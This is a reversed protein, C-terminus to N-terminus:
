GAVRPGQSENSSISLYISLYISICPFIWNSENMFDDDDEMKGDMKGDM